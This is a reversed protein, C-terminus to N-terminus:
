LSEQEPAPEQVMSMLKKYLPNEKDQITELTQMVAEFNVPNGTQAAANIYTELERLIEDDMSKGASSYSKSFLKLLKDDSMEDLKDQIMPVLIGKNIVDEALEELDSFVINMEDIFSSIKENIVETPMGQKELDKRLRRDFTANDRDARRMVQNLITYHVPDKDSFKERVVDLIANEAEKESERFVDDIMSSLFERFEYTETVADLEQPLAPLPEGRKKASIADNRFKKISEKYGPLDELLDPLYGSAAATEIYLPLLQDGVFVDLEEKSANDVIYKIKNFIKQLFQRAGSAGSSFGLYDAINQLRKGPDDTSMTMPREDDFASLSEPSVTPLKKTTAGQPIRTVEVEKLSRRRSLKRSEIARSLVNIAEAIRQIKAARSESKVSRKMPNEEEENELEPEEEASVQRSKPAAKADREEEAATLLDKMRRYFKGVQDPPVLGAVASAANRLDSVSTPIYDEDEIPPRETSLQASMLETPKLPLDPHVTPKFDPDTERTPGPRDYIGYAVDPMHYTIDEFLIKELAWELKRANTKL